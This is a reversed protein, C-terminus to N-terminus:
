RLKGMNLDTNLVLILCVNSKFESQTVQTLKARPYLGQPSDPKVLFLLFCYGFVIFVIFVIFWFCYVIFFCYFCDDLVIFVIFVIVWFVIFLLGPNLWFCFGISNAM